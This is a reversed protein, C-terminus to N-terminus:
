SVGKSSPAIQFYSSSQDLNRNFYPDGAARVGPWKVDFLALDEESFDPANVSNDYRRVPCVDMTQLKVVSTQVIRFGLNRVRQCLDATGVESDYSGDFGGIENFLSRSIMMGSVSTASANQFARLNCQYGPFDDPYGRYLPMIRESTVAVGYCKNTGDAYLTKPSAIGIGDHAAFAMLQELPEPTLFFDGSDLFLLYEGKAHTAGRNMQNYRGEDQVAAVFSVLADDNKNKEEVGVFIIEVFPYSNNERFFQIFREADDSSNCSVIVSVLADQDSAPFWVNHINIIGSAIICAREGRRQLQEMAARRYAVRSYPKADPNAATSTDSIRWHYLVKQVHGVNRARDAAFMIMNYDQAGDYASTPRAMQDVISRRVCMLHIVYNKCLLLEPAYDPKFLPHIFHAGKSDVVMMDEDCYLVDTEPERNLLSAYEYLVDPELADDHDLFCLFDGSAAEIGANTNETIGRNEDLCVLKVRGDIRCYKDVAIALSRSEPSANVLVLEFSKYTQALVSAVMLELYDLPTKYLPVIISFLPKYTFSEHRQRELEEKSAKHLDFWKGYAPDTWADIPFFGTEPEPPPMLRHKVRRVADLIGM